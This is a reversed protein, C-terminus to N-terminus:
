ARERLLEGSDVVRARLGPPATELPVLDILLQDSTAIGLASLAEFYREDPLGEVALDVDSRPGFARSSGVALTGFLYVRVAGFREVLLDACRKAAARADIASRCSAQREAALRRRWALAYPRMRADATNRTM